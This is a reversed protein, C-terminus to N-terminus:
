IQFPRETLYNCKYRFCFSQACKLVHPSAHVELLYSLMIRGKLRAGLINPIDNNYVCRHRSTHEGGRHVGECWGIIIGPM